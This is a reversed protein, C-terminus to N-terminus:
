KARKWTSDVKAGFSSAPNVYKLEDATVSTVIRKQETGNFAAFSSGRVRHVITKDAESVTYTGHYAIVGQVAAKHQEPTAKEREFKPIDSRMIMFSFRGNPHYILSGTANPDWSNFKSGDPRTNIASGFTWSGIIQGKLSKQQAAADGAPLVLGSCLLAIAALALATRRNM